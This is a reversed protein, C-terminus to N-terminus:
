VGLCLFPGLCIFGECRVKTWRQGAGMGLLAAHGLVGDLGQLALQVAQASVVDFEKLLDLEQLTVRASHTGWGWGV